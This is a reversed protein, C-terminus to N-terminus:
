FINLVKQKNKTKEGLNQQLEINIWSKTYHTQASKKEM